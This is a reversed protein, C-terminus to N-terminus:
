CKNLLTKDIGHKKILKGLSRREKGARKAAKTVNGGTEALLRTLYEIEFRRIIEAKAEQMNKKLYHEQRRDIHSKRREQRISRVGNLTILPGDALLFEKHLMNELERVNGPWRYQKLSQFSALDLQKEPQNYQIRFKNLFYNALELVDNGRQSLSPMTISMIDLRFYLDKRFDGKNVLEQLKVNSAAIIRINARKPTSSGLSKYLFDQLFRLLVIQGKPSFTDVEDLFLTGGEAQSLIGEQSTNADTFAGQQHGFLENELLGDPIAGCNLPIFPYDRRESLYHIARATLEKGTGSEGEILVPADCRAIKKIQQLVHVFAPSSGVLNLDIFEELLKADGNLDPIVRFKNYLNELRIALENESCPWYLFENFYNLFDVDFNREPAQIVGLVPIKRITEFDPKSKPTLIIKQDVPIVLVKNFHNRNDNRLDDWEWSDINTFGLRVLIEKLKQYFPPSFSL